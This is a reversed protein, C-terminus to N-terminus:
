PQGPSSITEVATISLEAVWLDGSLRNDIHHSANRRLRVVMAECDHPVHFRLAFPQWPQDVAVMETQVRTAECRHGYVEFFPRQNTTLATSKWQGQLLYEQNGALPVLQWLHRFAINEQGNFLFRLTPLSDSQEMQWSFAAHRGIRWGFATQLPPSIFDGNYLLKEGGLTAQWIEAALNARDAGILLNLFRLVEGQQEGADMAAFRPWLTIADEIHRTRVAHRFLHAVTAQGLTDARESPEPWVTAAMRLADTRTKGPIESIIYALDNALLDLRRFQYAVLAKDWSWRKVQDTYSSVLDLIAHATHSDGIDNRLEALGLWAPIFLPNTILAQRYLTEATALDANFLHEQKGHWTLMRANTWYTSLPDHVPRSSYVHQAPLALRLQVLALGAVLTFVFLRVGKHRSLQHM